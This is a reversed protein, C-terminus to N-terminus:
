AQEQFERHEKRRGLESDHKLCQPSQVQKLISKQLKVVKKMDSRTKSFSELIHEWKDVGSLKHHRHQGGEEQGSFLFEWFSRGFIVMGQFGRYSAM